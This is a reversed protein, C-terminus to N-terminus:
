FQESARWERKIDLTFCQVTQTCPPLLYLFSATISSMVAARTTVCVDCSANQMGCGQGERIMTILAPYLWSPRWLAVPMLGADFLPSQTCVEDHATHQPVHEIWWSSCHNSLCSHFCNTLAGVFWCSQWDTLLSLLTIRIIWKAMTVMTVLAM